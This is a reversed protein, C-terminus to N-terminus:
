LQQPEQLCRDMVALFKAGIMGDTARHDASLSATMVPRICLQGSEVWPRSLVKGLGVLAVQPPYIIGTVSEVGLDGLSTVTITADTMESSRLRGNRARPILENLDDMLQDVTKAGVDHIAPAVLGGGSMTIAFGVHVCDSQRLEGDIWHGNLQPVDALARAVAKLMLAAPLLRKAIPRKGNEEQLWNVVPQMNISTHLYYHPIERKSKVMAAAIAKRLLRRSSEPDKAVADTTKAPIGAVPPQTPSAAKRQAASEVDAVTIASNPGTGKLVELHVGLEVARRRARPSVRLRSSSMPSPSIPDKDTQPVSAPLSPTAKRLGATDGIEALSKEAPREETGNGIIAMVSGVPLTQGEAAILQKVVGEMFCELDIVGKATDVEGIIQGRKILDGPHIRWQVLTAEEMDAGLSPMRFEAM